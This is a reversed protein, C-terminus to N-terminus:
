KKLMLLIIQECNKAKCSIALLYNGMLLIEQLMKIKEESSVDQDAYGTHFKAIGITYCM